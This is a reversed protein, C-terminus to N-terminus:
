SNKRDLVVLTEIHPTHPFFDYGYVQSLNYKQLVIKLDRALTIPDCSVYFIQKPGSELLVDCVKKEMGKRPPDVILTDIKKKLIESVLNESPGKYLTYNNIKNLKINEKLFFINEEFLEVGFIKEAKDSLLIGFTGIGCYLDALIKIDRTKVAENIDSILLRLTSNNVQFFSQAGIHFTKGEIKEELYNVGYMTEQNRTKADIYIIGDLPLAKILESFCDGCNKHGEASAGYLILLLRGSTNEKTEIEEIFKLQYKNAIDASLLFLKNMGESALYCKDIPEFQDHTDPRHYALTAVNNKWLLHLRLKNRYAWTERSHKLTFNKLEQKLHRAFIERIQSEKLEIQYNYDIHQYPSCVKYHRCLPPVRKSSPKIISLTEAEVYNKREKLPKIEVTEGPLGENTFIVKGEHSALSKGPYVIKQIETKM